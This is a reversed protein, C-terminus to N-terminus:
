EKYDFSVYQQRYHGDSDGYLEVHQRYYCDTLKWEYEPSGSWYTSEGTPKGYISVASDYMKGKSETEADRYVTVLKNKQFFCAFTEKGDGVYTVELNDGWWEWAEPKGLDDAGIKKKFDEFSLGFLGTDMKFFGTDSDVTLYDSIKKGGSLVIILIIVVLLVAAGAAIFPIYKKIDFSGKEASKEAKVAAKEAAKEAKKAKLAEKAEREEREKQEALARREEQEKQQAQLTELRKIEEAVQQKQLELEARREEEAKLAAKQAEEEQLRKRKTAFLADAENTNNDSM